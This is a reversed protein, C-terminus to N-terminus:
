LKWHLISDIFYNQVDTKFYQDIKEKSQTLFSEGLFSSADLTQFIWKFKEINESKDQWRIAFPRIGQTFAKSRSQAMCKGDLFM